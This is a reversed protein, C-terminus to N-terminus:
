FVGQVGVAVGAAGRQSGPGDSTANVFLWVGGAAVTTLGTALLVDSATSLTREEDLASRADVSCLSRGGPASVCDAEARQGASNAALGTALSAGLIAVGVGATLWAPWQPPGRPRLRLLEPETRRRYDRLSALEERLRQQAQFRRELSDIRQEIAVRERPQELSSLYQSLERAAAEYEGQREHANALNFLLQPRGSLEYARRYNRVAEAYRGAAYNQEGAEFFRRALGQGDSRPSPASSPVTATM